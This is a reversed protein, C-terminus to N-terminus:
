TALGYVEKRIRQLTAIDLTNEGHQAQTLLTDLKANVEAQWKQRNVGARSLRAQSLSLTNLLKAKREPDNTNEFEEFMNIQDFLEDRLRLANAKDLANEAEDDVQAVMYSAARLRNLTKQFDRKVEQGYVHLASKGIAYGQEALWGSLGDYDGFGSKVLRRDLEQRVESPLRDVRRPPAM